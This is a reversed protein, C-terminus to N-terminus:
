VAILENQIGYIILEISNRLGTKKLMNRRHDDVTTKSIYLIESIERSSLGKAMNHLVSLERKSLAVNNENKQFEPVYFGETGPGSYSYRVKDDKKLGSIDTCISIAALINKNESIDLLASQRQLKLYHGMAHRVRYEVTLVSKFTECSHSKTWDFCALAISVVDKVDDPHITNTIREFDFHEPNYGLIKETQPSVYLVKMKRYNLVYYFHNDALLVEKNLIEQILSYNFPRDHIFPKCYTKLRDFPKEM